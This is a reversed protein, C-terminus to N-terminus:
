VGQCVALVPEIADSTRAMSPLDFTADEVIGDNEIRVVLTGSSRVLTEIFTRGHLVSVSNNAAGSVFGFNEVPQDSNFRYTMWATDGGFQDQSRVAYQLRSEEYCGVILSFIGGRSRLTARASVVDTM